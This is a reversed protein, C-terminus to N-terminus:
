VVRIAPPVRRLWLHATDLMDQPRPLLLWTRMQGDGDRISFYPACKLQEEELRVCWIGHIAQTDLLWIPGAALTIVAEDLSKDREGAAGPKATEPHAAHLDGGLYVPDGPSRAPAPDFAVLPGSFPPLDVGMERALDTFRIARSARDDPDKDLSAPGLSM